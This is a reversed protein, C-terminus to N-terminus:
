EVSGGIMNIFEKESIKKIGLKDAKDTKGSKWGPETVLYDLNKSVGAVLGGNKKVAKELTGRDNTMTGTFCFSLGNIKSNTSVVNPKWNEIEVRTKMETIVSRVDDLALKLEKASTDSFGPIASVYSVTTALDLFTDVNCEKGYTELIKEFSKEGFGQVDVGNIFKLLTTKSTLLTAKNLIKFKGAGFNDLKSLRVDGKLGIDYFEPLDDAIENEFIADITEGGLGKADHVRYWNLVRRKRKSSSNPNTSVLYVLEKGDANKEHVIPFGEADHTPPKIAKTGQHVSVREICPIVDNRRSIVVLDGIKVNLSSIYDVNNLTAKSITIGGVDVPELIGTPAYRGGTDRWVVDILKTVAEEAPFKYAMSREPFDWRDDALNFTEIVLGDVDWDLNKRKTSIYDQMLTEMESITKRLYLTVPTLGCAKILKVVDAKTKLGLEKWNMISYTQVSLHECGEGDSRKATGTGSNRTNKGGILPFDSKYLLCENRFVIRRKDPITLKVGKMKKVNPTIDEGIDGDGRTIAAVLSGNEYIMKLSMGDLKHSAVWQEGPYKDAWAKLDEYNKVKNQSGMKLNGHDYKPWRNDEKDKSSSDKTVKKVSAGVQKLRKNTPDLKKLRDKLDDYEADSVGSDGFTHYLQNYEDILKELKKVENIM